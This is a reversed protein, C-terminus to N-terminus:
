EYSIRKVPTIGEDLLQNTLDAILCELYEVRDHSKSLEKHLREEVPTIPDVMRIIENVSLNMPIYLITRRSVKMARLYCRRNTEICEPLVCRLCAKVENIDEDNMPALKSQDKLNTLVKKLRDKLHTFDVCKCGPRYGLYRLRTQVVTLSCRPPCSVDTKWVSNDRRHIM